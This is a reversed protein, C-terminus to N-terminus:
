ESEATIREGRVLRGVEILSDGLAEIMSYPRESSRSVLVVVPTAV